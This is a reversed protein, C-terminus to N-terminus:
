DSRQAASRVAPPLRVNKAEGWADTRFLDLTAHQGEDFSVLFPKLMKGLTRHYEHGLESMNNRTGGFLPANFKLCVRGGPKLFNERLDNFLFLYDDTTWYAGNSEVNFMIAFATILDFRKGHLADDSVLAVQSKMKQDSTPIGFFALLSAFRVRPGRHDEPPRELATARHGYLSAAYCFFGGGAGMDLTDMKPSTHLGLERARLLNVAVHGTIDLYKSAYFDNSARYDRVVDKFLEDMDTNNLLTEFKDLEEAIEPSRKRYVGLRERAKFFRVVGPVKESQKSALDPSASDRM